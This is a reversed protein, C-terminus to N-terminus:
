KKKPAPKPDPKKPAPKGAPASGGKPSKAPERVNAM